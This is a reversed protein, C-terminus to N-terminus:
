SRVQPDNKPQDFNKIQMGCHVNSTAQHYSEMSISGDRVTKWLVNEWTNNFCDGPSYYNEGLWYVLTILGVCDFEKSALSVGLSNSFASGQRKLDHVCETIQMLDFPQGNMGYRQGQDRHGQDDKPKEDWVRFYHSSDSPGEKQPVRNKNPTASYTISGATVSGGWKWNHIDTDSDCNVSLMLFEKECDDPTKSVGSDWKIKLEVENLDDKNFTYSIEHAAAGQLGKGDQGALKDSDHCMSHINDDLTKQDVFRWSKRSDDDKTVEDTGKRCTQQPASSPPNSGGGGGGGFIEQTSKIMENWADGDPWIFAESEGNMCPCGQQARHDEDRGKCLGTQPDMGGCEADCWYHGNNPMCEHKTCPCPNLFASCTKDDKSQCLQIQCPIDAQAPCSKRMSGRRGTAFNTFTNPHNWTRESAISAAVLTIFPIEIFTISLTTDLLNFIEPAAAVFAQNVQDHEFAPVAGIDKFEGAIPNARYLALLNEAIFRNSITVRATDRVCDAVPDSRRVRSLAKCSENQDLYDHIAKGLDEPMSVKFQSDTITLLQTTQAQVVRFVAIGFIVASRLYM